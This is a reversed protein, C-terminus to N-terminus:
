RIDKVKKGNQFILKVQDRDALLEIKDLPNGAVVVVDALKGVELSGVEHERNLLHASQITGIKISEMATFGLEEVMTVFEQGHNGYPGLDSRSYDTGYAFRIGADKARKLSTIHNKACERGKEKMWEPLHALKPIMTSITLTACVTADMEKMLQVCEDDLNIGHEISMVGAKLAQKTGALGSCHAAVYTGHRKAEAVVTRMEEDSFQIDELGDVQSSVGGTASIKIFEAGERFQKRTGALCESTGDMLYSINSHENVYEKPLSTDGDGHGATVSLLRGGSMIKPGRARGEKVAKALYPGYLSMERVSTFGADLLYGMDHAAALICDFHSVVFNNEEITSEGTLHLHCDIFGPMITGDHIEYVEEEGSILAENYEGVYEIQQEKIIVMGREIPEASVADIIRGILVKKM